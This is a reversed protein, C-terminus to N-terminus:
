QQVSVSPLCERSQLYYLANRSSLFTAARHDCQIFATEATANGSGPFPLFNIGNNKMPLKFILM